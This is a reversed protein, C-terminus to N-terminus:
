DHPTELRRDGTELLLTAPKSHNNSTVPTQHSTVEKSWWSDIGLNYLPTIGPRGFQDWYAVRWANINWHPIVYYEHLLVRDLARGAPRLESLTQANQIKAILADVIPNKIGGLNQSGKVDAQSSHWYLFQETGPYFLGQNWWISVMDFDRADLASGDAARTGAPVEATYRTAMPFRGAPQFLLTKTGLWRWAGEPAPSLTVPVTGAAADAATLAVMPRDFTVSLHPALPVAGEPQRRLVTLPGTPVAPPAPM